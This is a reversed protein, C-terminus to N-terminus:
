TCEDLNIIVYGFARCASQESACAQAEERTPFIAICGEDDQEIPFVIDREREVIIIFRGSM